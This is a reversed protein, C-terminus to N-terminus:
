SRKVWRVLAAGWPKRVVGFMTRWMLCHLPNFDKEYFAFDHETCNWKSKFASLSHDAIDSTMFNFSECGHEMAREIATWILLDSACLPRHINHSAGLFYFARPGDYFTLLGALPQGEYRAILMTAEGTAVYERRILELMPRQWVVFTRNRIMTERYMEFLEGVQDPGAVEEITVGSKRAKRVDRRVRGKFSMWLADRDMGEFHLVHEHAPLVRVGKLPEFRDYHGRCIRVFHYGHQPFARSTLKMFTDVRQPDGVFGGYPLNAYFLRAVVMAMEIGPLGLVPREGAVLLFYYAPYGLGDRLMRCWRPTQYMHHPHEGLLAEVRPDHIDVRILDM